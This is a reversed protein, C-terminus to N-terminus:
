ITIYFLPINGIKCDCFYSIVCKKTIVNLLVESLILYVFVENTIETFTLM